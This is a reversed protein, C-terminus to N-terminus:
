LIFTHSVIKQAKIMGNFLSSSISSTMLVSSIGVVSINMGGCNQIDEVATIIDMVTNFSGWM